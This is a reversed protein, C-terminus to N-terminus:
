PRGDDPHKAGTKYYGRQIDMYEVGVFRDGGAAGM